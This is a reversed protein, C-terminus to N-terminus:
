IEADQLWSLDLTWQHLSRKGWVVMAAAVHAVAQALTWGNVKCLHRFARDGNGITIARGIHKVEHCPPCLATVGILTQVHNKDNYMWQEHCEVPHKRGKGGCIECSYEARIYVSKRLRDWQTTTIESRLNIGWTSSPVLEVLLKGKPTAFEEDGDGIGFEHYTM